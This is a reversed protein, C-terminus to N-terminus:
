SQLLVWTAERFTSKFDHFSTHKRFNELNKGHYIKCYLEKLWKYNLVILLNLTLVDYIIVKKFPSLLYWPLCKFRNGSNIYVVLSCLKVVEAKLM